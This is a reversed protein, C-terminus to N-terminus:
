LGAQGPFGGNGHGTRGLLRFLCEAAPQTLDAKIRTQRAPLKGPQGAKM